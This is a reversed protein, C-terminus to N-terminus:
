GVAQSPRRQHMVASEGGGFQCRGVCALPRARSVSNCPITDRRGERPTVVSDWRALDKMRVSLRASNDAIVRPRGYHFRYYLRPPCLDPRSSWTLRWPRDARAVRSARPGSPLRPVPAIRRILWLACTCIRGRRWWPCPRRSTPEGTMLSWPSSTNKITQDAPSPNCQIDKFPGPRSAVTVWPPILAVDLSREWSSM